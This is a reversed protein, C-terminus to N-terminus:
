YAIQPGCPHTECCAAMLCVAASRYSNTESERSRSASRHMDSFCLNIPSKGINPRPDAIYPLNQLDGNFNACRLNELIERNAVMMFRATGRLDRFAHVASVRKRLEGAVFTVLFKMLLTGDACITNIESACIKNTSKLPM